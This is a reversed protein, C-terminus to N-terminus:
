GGLAPVVAEKYAYAALGAMDTAHAVVEVGAVGKRFSEVVGVIVLELIAVLIFLYIEYFARGAEAFLFAVGEGVLAM